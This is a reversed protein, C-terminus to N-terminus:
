GKEGRHRITWLFTPFIFTLMFHFLFSFQFIAVWSSSIMSNCNWSLIYSGCTGMNYVLQRESLGMFQQGMRFTWLHTLSNTAHIWLSCVYLLLDCYYNNSFFLSFILKWLQSFFYLSFIASNVQFIAYVAITPRLLPILSDSIHLFWRLCTEKM